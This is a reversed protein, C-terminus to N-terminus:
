SPEGTEELARRWLDPTRRHFTGLVVSEVDTPDCALGFGPEVYMQRWDQRDTVLVALAVAMYDFAKNSAGTM